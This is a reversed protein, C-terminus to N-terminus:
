AEYIITIWGRNYSTSNFDVSDFIGSTDRVITIDTDIGPTGVPSIGYAPYFSVGNDHSGIAYSRTDTDNRIIGSVSRIKKYDALGHAVSVSSTADMDWDGIEIVIIKFYAGTTETRWGSQIEATGNITIASGSESILSNGITTASTAKPIYDTTLGSIGGPVAAWTPVGGSVTLVQNATGIGLRATVNAGNRIIIDGITTMPDTIKTNLQTQIASTVGSLYGAETATVGSAIIVGAGNSILLRDATVTALKSLAIAAAANIDVNLIAGPTFSTVGTNTIALVGSVTRAQAQNSANGIFISGNALVDSIPGSGNGNNPIFYRSGIVTWSGAAPVAKLRIDGALLEVEFTLDETSGIIDETSSDFFEITSGDATWSGLISGSRQENTSKYLVYDWRAGRADTLDFSDVVTPVTITTVQFDTALGAEGQPGPPGDDGPDGPIGTLVAPPEQFEIPAAVPYQNLECLIILCELIYNVNTIDEEEVLNDRYNLADLYGSITDAKTWSADNAKGLKKNEVLENVLNTYYVQSQYIISDIRVDIM